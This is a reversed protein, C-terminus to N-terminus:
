LLIEQCVVHPSICACSLAHYHSSLAKTDYILMVATWNPLQLTSCFSERDLVLNFVHM